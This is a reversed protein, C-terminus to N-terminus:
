CSLIRQEIPLNDSEETRGDRRWFIDLSAKNRSIFASHIDLKKEILCFRLIFHTTKPQPVRVTLTRNNTKFFPKRIQGLIL